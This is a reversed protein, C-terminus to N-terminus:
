SVVETFLSCFTSVLWCHDTETNQEIMKFNVLCFPSFCRFFCILFKKKKMAIKTIDEAYQNREQGKLTLLKTM